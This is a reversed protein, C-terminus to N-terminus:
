NDKLQNRIAEVANAAPIVSEPRLMYYYRRNEKGRALYNHNLLKKLIPYIKGSGYGTKQMLEYGYRPTKIDHLFEQLVRAVAITIDLREM